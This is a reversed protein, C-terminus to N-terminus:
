VLHHHTLCLCCRGTSAKQCWIVLDCVACRKEPPFASRGGPHHCMSDCGSVLAGPDVCEVKRKSAAIVAPLWRSERTDMLLFVVDHSEILQELQEVDRRAQELTISSFNVPHGPMPISMNFGRANQPFVCICFHRFCVYLHYWLAWTEGYSCAHMHPWRCGCIERHMIKSSTGKAVKHGAGEEGRCGLNDQGTMGPDRLRSLAALLSM